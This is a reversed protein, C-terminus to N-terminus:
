VAPANRCWLTAGDDKGVACAHRRDTGRLRTIRSQRRRVFASKSGSFPLPWAATETRIAQKMAIARRRIPADAYDPRVSVCQKL